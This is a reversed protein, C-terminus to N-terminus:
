IRLPLHQPLSLYHRPLLHTHMRTLLAACYILLVHCLQLSRLLLLYSQWWMHLRLHLHRITRVRLLLLHHHLLCLRPLVLLLMHRRLLCMMQCHLLRMGLATVLSM